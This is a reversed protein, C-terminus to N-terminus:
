QSASSQSSASQATMYKLSRYLWVAADARTMNQGPNFSSELLIRADVAARVYPTFWQQDPVGAPLPTRSSLPLGLASIIIKMGEAKNIVRSGGFSGDPYGRIWGLRKAACVYSSFWEEHVDPFCGTEGELEKPRLSGLLLKSFEARNLPQDPKFTGDKYGSIIGKSSLDMIATYGYRGQIVDPYTHTSISSSSSGSSRPPDGVIQKRIVLEQDRIAPSCTSSNSVRWDSVCAFHPSYAPYTGIEDCEYGEGVAIDFRLLYLPSCRYPLLEEMRQNMAPTRDAPQYESFHKRTEHITALSLRNNMEVVGGVATGASDKCQVPGKQFGVCYFSRCNYGTEVMTGSRLINFPYCGIPDYQAMLERQQLTISGMERLYVVTGTDYGLVRIIADDFAHLSFATLLVPPLAFAPLPLLLIFAILLRRLSHPM